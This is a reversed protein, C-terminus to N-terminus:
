SPKYEPPTVFGMRYTNIQFTTKSTIYIRPEIEIFITRLLNVELQPTKNIVIYNLVIFVRVYKNWHAYCNEISGRSYASFYDNTSSDVLKVM